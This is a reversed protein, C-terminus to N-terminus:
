AITYESRLIGYTECDEFKGWKKIHQKLCGEYKLGIKRLVRGSAPNRKYHYACIRNLGLAELGYRLVAQGAEACYGQNWYPKGIWYGLEAREHQRIINLGIAGILFGKERHTIAFNVEEGKEYKERHTSIWQEAMGNEYPHPMHLTTSAIDRDSALRQVEGADDLTFPSLRLRKTEIAPCKEM